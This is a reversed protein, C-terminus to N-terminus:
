FHNFGSHLGARLENVATKYPSKSKMISNNRSTKRHIDACRVAIKAM